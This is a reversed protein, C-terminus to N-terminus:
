RNGNSSGSGSGSSSNARSIAALRDDFYDDAKPPPFVHEKTKTYKSNGCSVGTANPAGISIIAKYDSRSGCSQQAIRTAKYGGNSFGILARPKELKAGGCAASAMSEIEKLGKNSWTRVTGYSKSHIVTDSTPVAIRIHHRMALKELYKRNQIEWNMYKAARAGNM